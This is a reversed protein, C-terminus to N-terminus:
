MSLLLINELCITHSHTLQETSWCSCNLFPFKQGILEIIGQVPETDLRFEKELTSYWGKGANLINKEAVERSLYTQLTSDKIETKLSIKNKIYDYSFYLPMGDVLNKLLELKNM